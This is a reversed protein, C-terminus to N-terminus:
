RPPGKRRGPYQIYKWAQLFVCYGPTGHHSRSFRQGFSLALDQLQDALQGLGRAKRGRARFDGLLHAKARHVRGLLVQPGQLFLAGQLDQLARGPAKAHAVLDRGAGAAQHLQRHDTADRRAARHEGFLM